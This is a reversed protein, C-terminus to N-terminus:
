PSSIKTSYYLSALLTQLSAESCLEGNDEITRQLFPSKEMSRLLRYLNLKTYGRLRWVLILYCWDHFCCAVNNIPTNKGRFHEIAVKQTSAYGKLSVDFEEDEWDFTSADTLEVETKGNSELCVVM